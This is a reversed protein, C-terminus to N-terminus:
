LVKHHSLSMCFFEDDRQIELLHIFISVKNMVSSYDVAM